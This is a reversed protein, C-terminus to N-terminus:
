MAPPKSRLYSLDNLFQSYINGAPEIFRCSINGCLSPFGPKQFVTSGSHEELFVPNSKDTQNMFERKQM